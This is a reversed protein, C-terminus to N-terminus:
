HEHHHESLACAPPPSGSVLRSCRIKGDKMVAEGAGSIATFMDPSLANYKEPRNLRVDAVHNEVNVTVLESMHTGKKLLIHQRMQTKITELNFVVYTQYNCFLFSSFFQRFGLETSM